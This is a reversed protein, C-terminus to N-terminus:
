RQRAALLYQHPNVVANKDNRARIEFHLHASSTGESGLHCIRQGANVHIGNAPRDLTHKYHFERAFSDVIKFQHYGFASGENVWVIKGPYCAVLPQGYNGHVDNGGHVYRYRGDPCRVWHYHYYTGYTNYARPWYFSDALYLSKGAQNPYALTLSM